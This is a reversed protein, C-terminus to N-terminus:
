SRRFRYKLKSIKKWVTEACEEEPPQRALYQLAGFLSVECTM